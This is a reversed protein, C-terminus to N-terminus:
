IWIRKKQTNNLWDTLLARLKIFLLLDVFSYWVQIIYNVLDTRGYACQNYINKLILQGTSWVRVHAEESLNYSYFFLLKKAWWM